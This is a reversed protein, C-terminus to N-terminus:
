NDRKFPDKKEPVRTNLDTWIDNLETKLRIIEKSNISVIDCLEAVVRVLKNNIKM